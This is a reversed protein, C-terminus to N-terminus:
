WKNFHLARSFTGQEFYDEAYSEGYEGGTENISEYESNSFPKWFDLDDPDSGSREQVSVAMADWAHRVYHTSITPVETEEEGNAQWYEAILSQSGELNEIPEWSDDDPPFGKWHVLFEHRNQQLRHDLIQEVVWESESNIIM